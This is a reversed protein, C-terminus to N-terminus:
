SNDTYIRTFGHNVKRDKVGGELARFRWYEGATESLDGTPKEGKFVRSVGRVVRRMPLDGNRGDPVARGDEGHPLVLAEVAGSTGDVGAREADEAAEVAALAETIRAEMSQPQAQM